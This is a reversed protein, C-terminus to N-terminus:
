GTQLATRIANILAEDSFPKLLFDVAGMQLAHSRINDDDHATIFIIPIQERSDKLKLQLDTGSMEPMRVDLVICDTKRLSDSELFEKASSFANVAFGLQKLFGQLSERVSEDDDVVTILSNKSMDIQRQLLRALRM